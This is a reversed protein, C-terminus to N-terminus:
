IISAFKNGAIIIHDLLEIGLIEGAAKLKATVEHDAATAKLTGSPHNHAVILAAASHELAPKFVERPHIISATLSGISIVEDHIVQYRSNLYLGRFQEKKLGRLDKLYESAQKASKVVALSGSPKQYLRKGIEFCAIIQCAQHKPINFDKELRAPDNHKAISKEGYDKILRNAMALVDEKKTGVGLVIALLESLSLAEPGSAILKEKPKESDPLDKVKLIKYKRDRNIVLDHSTINYPM